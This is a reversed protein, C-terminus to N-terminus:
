ILPLSLFPSYTHTKKLIYINNKNKKIVVVGQMWSVGSLAWGVGRAQLCLGPTPKSVVVVKALWCGGCGGEESAFM